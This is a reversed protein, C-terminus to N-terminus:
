SSVRSEKSEWSGNNLALCCCAFLSSGDALPIKRHEFPGFRINSDARPDFIVLEAAENKACLLGPSIGFNFGSNDM